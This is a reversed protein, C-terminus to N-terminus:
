TRHMIHSRCSGHDHGAGVCRACHGTPSRGSITGHGQSQGRRSRGFHEKVRMLAAVEAVDGGGGSVVPDAIMVESARM